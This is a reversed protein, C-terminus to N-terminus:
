FNSQQLVGYVMVNRTAYVSYKNYISCKMLIFIKIHASCINVYCLKDLLMEEPHCGLNFLHGIVGATPYASLAQTDAPPSSSPAVNTCM